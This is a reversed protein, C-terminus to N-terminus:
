LPIYHIWPSFLTTYKWSPQMNELNLYTYSYIKQFLFDHNFLYMEFDYWVHVPVINVPGNCFHTLGDLTWLCQGAHASVFKVFLYSSILM